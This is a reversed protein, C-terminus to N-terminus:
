QGDEDAITAVSPISDIGSAKDLARGIAADIAASIAPERARAAPILFPRAAMKTTGFEVWHGYYGIKLARKGFVGIKAAMGNSVRAIRLASALKGTKRPVRALAERLVQGAGNQIAERVELTINPEISQLLRRLRAAGQVIETAM